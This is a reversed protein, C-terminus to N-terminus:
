VTFVGGLEKWLSSNEYNGNDTPNARVPEFGTTTSFLWIEKQGELLIPVNQEQSVRIRLWSSSCITLTWM